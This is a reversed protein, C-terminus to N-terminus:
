GVFNYLSLPDPPPEVRSSAECNRLLKTAKMADIPVGNSESSSAVLSNITSMNVFALVDVEKSLDEQDHGSPEESM